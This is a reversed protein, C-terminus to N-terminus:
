IIRDPLGDGNTDIFGSDTIGDNNKDKIFSDIKGDGNTDSYVTDIMGDGNTDMAITDFNGDGDTDLYVLDPKGDGNTDFSDDIGDGDTDFGTSSESSEDSNFYSSILKYIVWAFLLISLLRKFKIKMPSDELFIGIIVSILGNIIILLLTVPLGQELGTDGIANIILFILTSILVNILSIVNYYKWTIVESTNKKLIILSTINFAWLSFILAIMLEQYLFSIFCLAVLVIQSILSQKVPFIKKVKKLDIM